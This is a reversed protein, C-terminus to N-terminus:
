EFLRNLANLYIIQYKEATEIKSTVVSNNKYFLINERTLDKIKQALNEPTFDDAVVGLNYQEV